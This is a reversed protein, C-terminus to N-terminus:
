RTDAVASLYWAFELQFNLAAGMRFRRGFFEDIARQDDSSRDFTPCVSDGFVPCRCLLFMGAM